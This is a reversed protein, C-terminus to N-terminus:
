ETTMAVLPSVRTARRAPLLCALLGVVFLVGVAALLTIPDNPSTKYLQAAILRSLGLAALTGLVAGGAMLLLGERLVQRLIMGVSAGLALRVGIERTRQAVGYAMVSYIGAVTLLLATGTLVGVIVLTFRRVALSRDAVQEMTMVSTVPISADMAKVERRFAAEITSAPLSARMVWYTRLRIWPVAPPEMQQFPVYLDLTPAEDIKTQKVDAVVGVIQFKRRGSPSDDIEIQRGVADQGPFYKHALNAGVVVSLPHTQDDTEALLRGSILRVGLAEFFGPSVLRYNASPLDSQKPIERGTVVFNTTALGPALPLLSTAGVSEVGPLGALRTRLEREFRWLAERDPYGADPQSLRATLTHAPDAGPRELGVAVFSRLFLGSCALLAVALAIQVTVLSRRTRNMGAGSTSGRTSTSIADRLDTRSFSWLPLLGPLVGAVLSVIFTFALVAGNFHIGAARPVGPPLLALLSDLGWQALLGGAIGGAVTLVLCEALLLRLLQGRSSGLASRIALERRRGIGRVLLLGALNACALLLLSAVLGLLTALIPRVDGSIDEALPVITNKDYSAYVAPIDRRLSSLVRDLDALALKTDVGPALRAAVRLSHVANHDHRYKELDPQIPVVVENHYGNLPMVFGAPFVGVITRLEGSLRVSRGIVDDSGGFHSQWFEYSIVAVKPADPREDDPTLLRGRQPKLGILDFLNPSVKLGQILLAEGNDVLNTNFTGLASVGAFAHQRDRYECFEAIHFLGVENFAASHVSVLESPREYPLRRLLVAEVVSFVATNAGIGLALIFVFSLSTGPTKWLGRLAFKLDSIM